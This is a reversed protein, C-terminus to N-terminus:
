KFQAIQAATLLGRSTIENEEAASLSGGAFASALYATVKPTAADYWLGFHDEPPAKGQEDFMEYFHVSEFGVRTQGVIEFLYKTVSKFCEETLAGGADNEFAAQYIEGCNFENLHVPRGYTALEAFLGGPGYWTDVNWDAQNFSPYVHYGVVDFDIGNRRLFDLYGWDRGVTGAIVRLSTGSQKAVDRIAQYMGELVALKVAYCPKGEYASAPAQSNTAVEGQLEARLTVENMLEFDTVLDKVANVMTTTQAYADSETASLDLNCSTDYQYTPFLTTEAKIGVANLKQVQDRWPAANQGTGFNMRVTKINRAHLLDAVQQNAAANGGGNHINAGYLMAPAAADADASADPDTRGGADADSGGGDREPSDPSSASDGSHNATSDGSAAADPGGSPSGQSDGSVGCAVASTGSGLSIALAALVRTARQSRPAPPARTGAFERDRM